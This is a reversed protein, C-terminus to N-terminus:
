QGLKPITKNNPTKSFAMTHGLTSMPLLHNPLPGGMDKSALRLFIQLQLLNTTTTPPPPYPRRTVGKKRPKTYYGEHPHPPKSAVVVGKRDMGEV